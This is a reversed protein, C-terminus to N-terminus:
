KTQVSPEDDPIDYLRITKGITEVPQYSDLWAYSDIVTADFIGHGSRLYLLSVAIWGTNHKYSELPEFPPLNLRRLDASTWVQLALHSIGRAKLSSALKGVDQGCDLDCGFLLREEPHRGALINFYAIYDPHASISSIVQWSLLVALLAPGLLPRRYRTRWLRLAAGSVVVTLLPYIFLIHRLGLDVKVVTSVLLIALSSLAPAWAQWLNDTRLSLFLGGLALILFPLPTKLGLDLWYFYWFGGRKVQGLAYSPPSKKNQMWSALIGKFFEPAPVPPNIRVIASAVYRVPTALESLDQTPKAFAQNLPAISFRYGAWIVLASLLAAVFVTTLYSRWLSIGENNSSKRDCIWGIAIAIVCIPTFLLASLNSLVALGAAVGLASARKLNPIELWRVFAFLTCPLFASLAFDVYALGAFALVAPLTTYLLVAAVAAWAGYLDRAWLFVLRVGLLFFPLEGMRALALNRAYRDKTYLIENGASYIDVWGGAPDTVLKVQPLKAGALYPGIAAAVRALPPHLPELAFTGKDLWEMGCAIHAPEDYALSVSPYAAVIRFIALATLVVCIIIPARASGPGHHPM